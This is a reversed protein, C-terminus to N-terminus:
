EYRIDQILSINKLLTFVTDTLYHLRAYFGNTSKISYGNFERRVRWVVGVQDTIYVRHAGGKSLQNVANMLEQKVGPHAQGGMGWSTPLAPFSPLPPLTVHSRSPKPQGWLGALQSLGSPQLRKSWSGFMCHIFLFHRDAHTSGPVWGGAPEAAISFRAAGRARELVLPMVAALWVFYVFQTECDNLALTYQLTPTALESAPRKNAARQLPTREATEPDLM